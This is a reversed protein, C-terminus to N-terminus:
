AGQSGYAGKPDTWGASYREYGKYKLNSTDFDNDQAFEPAVRQVV